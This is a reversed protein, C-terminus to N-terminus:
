SLHICEILFCLMRQSIHSYCISHLFAFPQVHTEKVFHHFNSVILLVIMEITLMFLVTFVWIYCKSLYERWHFNLLASTFVFRNICLFPYFPLFILHSEVFDSCEILYLQQYNPILWRTSRYNLCIWNV